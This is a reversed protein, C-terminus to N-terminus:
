LDIDRLLSLLVPQRNFSSPYFRDVSLCQRISKNISTSDKPRFQDKFIAILLLTLLFSSSRLKAGFQSFQNPIAQDANNLSMLSLKLLFPQFDPPRSSSISFFPFIASRPSLLVEGRAPTVARTRYVSLSGTFRYM